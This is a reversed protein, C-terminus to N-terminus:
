HETDPVATLKAKGANEAAEVQNQYDQEFKTNGEEDLTIDVNDPAFVIRSNGNPMLVQIAGNGVQHGLVDEYVEVSDGKNITVTNGM